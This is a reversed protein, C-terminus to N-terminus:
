LFGRGLYGCVMPITVLEAPAAGQVIDTTDISATNENIYEIKAGMATLIEFAKAVDRIVPLNEIICKDRTLICGIIIPLAANKFGSITVEGSLQKGGNIIFKDM